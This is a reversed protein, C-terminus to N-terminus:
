LLCEERMVKEVESMSPISKSAGERTVTISSAVSAFRCASVIDAGSDLKVTIAGVYTDGASTTDIVKVKRSEIIDINNGYSVMSGRSGLTIIVNKIGRQYFHKVALALEVESDVSIGTLIQTETENPTIIDVNQMLEAPLPVAPAPNLIVTMGKNKAIKSAYVVVDLPIELQMVLIDGSKANKLGEDVDANTVKGNAGADIIIRNDGDVVIIMAIGSNGESVSVNTVDVGYSALNDKMYKGYTDTGVKGIMKVNGGLKAIAVAQNAGKGGANSYYKNATLTEGSQPMYPAVAVMDMNISGLVYIM